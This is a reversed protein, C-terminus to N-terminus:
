WKSMVTTVSSFKNLAHEFAADVIYWFKTRLIKTVINLIIPKKTFRQMTNLADLFM